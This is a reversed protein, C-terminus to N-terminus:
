LEVDNPLIVTGLDYNMSFSFLVSTYYLVKNQALPHGTRVLLQGRPAFISFTFTRTETRTLVSSGEQGPNDPPAQARVESATVPAESADVGLTDMKKLTSDKEPVAEEVDAETAMPEARLIAPQEGQLEKPIDVPGADEEGVPLARVSPVPPAVAPAEEFRPIALMDPVEAPDASVPAPPEVGEPRPDGTVVGSQIGPVPQQGVAHGLCLFMALGIAARSLRPFLLSM